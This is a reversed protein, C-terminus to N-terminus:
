ATTLSLLWQKLQRKNDADSTKRNTAKGWLLTRVLMTAAEHPDSQRSGKRHKELSRAVTNIIRELPERVMRSHKDDSILVQLLLRANPAPISAAWARLAESFQAHSLEAPGGFVKFMFIAFQQNMQTVVANVAQQYINEKNKFWVYLAPELVNAEKALSRTTVGKLSYSGFLRIAAEMIDPQVKRRM